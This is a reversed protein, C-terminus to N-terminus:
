RAAEADNAYVLLEGLVACEAAVVAEWEHHIHFHSCKFHEGDPELRVTATSEHGRAMQRWFVAEGRAADRERKLDSTGFWLAVGIIAGSV